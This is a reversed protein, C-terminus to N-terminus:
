RREQRSRDQLARLDLFAAMIALGTLLLCVLWYFLFTLDNLRGKLATEGLILMGLAIVLVIVGFWRRRMMRNPEMDFGLMSHKSLSLSQPVAADRPLPRIFALTKSHVKRM